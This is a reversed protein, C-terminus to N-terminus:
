CLISVKVLDLVSTISGAIVGTANLGKEEVDQSCTVCTDGSTSSRHRKPREDSAM